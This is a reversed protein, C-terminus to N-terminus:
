RAGLVIGLGSHISVFYNNFPLKPIDTVTHFEKHDELDSTM